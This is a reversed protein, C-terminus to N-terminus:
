TNLLKSVTILKKGLNKAAHWIDHSHIIEPHEKEAICSYHKGTVETALFFDGTISNNFHMCLIFFTDM